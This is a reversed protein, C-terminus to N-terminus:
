YNCKYYNYNTLKRKFASHFKIRADKILKTMEHDKIQQALSILSKYDFAGRSQELLYSLIERRKIKLALNLLNEGGANVIGLLQPYSTILVKIRSINDQQVARFADTALLCAEVNVVNLKHKTKTTYYHNYNDIFIDTKLDAELTQYKIEEKENYRIYDRGNMLEIKAKETAKGLIVDGEPILLMTLEADIFKELPMYLDVFNEDTYEKSTDEFNSSAEQNKNGIDIIAKDQSNKHINSNELSKISTEPKTIQQNEVIVKKELKVEPKTQVMNPLSIDKPSAAIEAPTKQAQNAAALKPSQPLALPPLSIDKPSVAIEAPTKQAQNAAALTPSQPLALPKKTVGQKNALTNKSEASSGFFSTLFDSISVWFSKEEHTGLSKEAKSDTYNTNTQKQTTKQTFVPIPPLFNNNDEAKINTVTFFFLILLATRGKTM